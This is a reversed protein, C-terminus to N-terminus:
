NKEVGLYMGGRPTLITMDSDYILPIVTKSSPKFRYNHLLTILGIRIQMKAFRMGICNRPGDGFGLFSMPYRKRTQEPSFRTPDFSEPNMYIEPDHHICYVPIMIEQGKEIITKTNPIQYDQAAKRILFVAPPYKRLAENIIQDIYTMEQIAEYTLKDEHKALIDRIEQRAKEQIEPNLALEYLCYAMTTSSTEFGGAFFLFAQAAVEKITLKRMQNASEDDISEGNKLQILFNMFDNRKVNNKERYDITERVTNMFFNIVEKRTLTIHLKKALDPYQFALLLTGAGIPADEFIKRGYYRFASNPDKLSNCEIGFACSGIVDTTFRALLDRIELESGLGPKVVNAITDNFRNAVDVVTSFMFKMKGSTFTPSLKTRLFKWKEGDVSFMHAALPDDEENLYAGREHFNSFDKVLINQIFDLSTPIVIPKAIIYAGVFPNENKYKYVSILFDKFHAKRSPLNGMPFIPEAYNVGRDKWYSYKKKFYIYILSVISILFWFVISLSGM